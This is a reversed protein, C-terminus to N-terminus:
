QPSLESSSKRGHKNKLFIMLNAVAAPTVGQIRSAQGINEPRTEKLRGRVENSLGAVTTYDFNSPIKLGEAGRVGELLQLDKEIYGNYKIQIEIQEFADADQISPVFGLEALVAFTVEPRRMLVEASVRDKIQTLGLDAFKQNTDANPYFYTSSIEKKIIEIKRLKDEFVAKESENLMGIEIAKPSLRLDANDERLLLRYEARSTFMRYPEDSGKLILDDVMVGIYGDLRTM